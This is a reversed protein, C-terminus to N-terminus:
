YIGVTTVIEGMTRVSHWLERTDLGVILAHQPTSDASSKGVDALRRCVVWDAPELPVNELLQLPYREITERLAQMATAYNHSYVRPEWKRPLPATIKHLRDYIGVLLFRCDCGGHRGPICCGDLFPTGQLRQLERQFALQWETM